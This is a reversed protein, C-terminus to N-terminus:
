SLFATLIEVLANSEAKTQCEWVVLIKWGIQELAIRNKEDRLVNLSRKNEWFTANTAPKVAGYRCEHMHWFCGHVFIIKHRSAFVLDPKGPLNRQHLRYRYGLRHVLSRVLMEPNTNKSRIRSMNFSRQEPSHVDKIM